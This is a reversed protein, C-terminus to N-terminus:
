TYKNILTINNKNNRKKLIRYRFFVLGMMGYFILSTKPADQHCSSSLGIPNVFFFVSLAEYFYKFKDKMIKSVKFSIYGSYFTLSIFLIIGLLGYRYYYLAYLSELLIDSKGIGYGILPFKNNEIACSIQNERTNVSNNNGELMSNFGTFAYGLNQRLDDQYTVFLIFGIFIIIAIITVMKFFSKSSKLNTSIGISLLLGFAACIYMSRSQTLLLTLFNLVFFTLNKFDINKVMGIFSWFLPLLLAYAANYIQFFPGIAKNNLIPLSRRKWLVYSIDRIPNPFVFELICYTCIILFTWYIMKLTQSEVVNIPLNSNNYYMFILLIGIPRLIELFDNPVINNGLIELLVDWSAITIYFGVYILISWSITWRFCGYLGIVGILIVNLVFILQSGFGIFSPFTPCLIIVLPIWFYSQKLINSLKYSLM